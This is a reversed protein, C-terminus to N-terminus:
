TYLKVNQKPNDYFGWEKLIHDCRKSVRETTEAFRKMLEEGKNHEFNDGMLKRIWGNFKEVREGTKFNIEKMRKALKKRDIMSARFLPDNRMAIKVNHKKTRMMKKLFKLRHKSFDAVRKLPHKKCYKHYADWLEDPIDVFGTDDSENLCEELTKSRVSNVSEQVPNKNIPNGNVDLEVIHSNMNNFEEETYDSIPRNHIRYTGLQEECSDFWDICFDVLKDFDDGYEMTVDKRFSPTFYETYVWYAKDIRYQKEEKKRRKVEKAVAKDYKSLHKKKKHKKDRKQEEARIEKESKMYLVPVKKKITDEKKEPKWDFEKRLKKLREHCSRKQQM